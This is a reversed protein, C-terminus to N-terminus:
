SFVTYRCLREVTTLRAHRAKHHVCRRCWMQTDGPIRYAALHFAFQRSWETWSEHVPNYHRFPPAVALQPQPLPSAAAAADHQLARQGQVLQGLADLLAQTQQNQLRYFESLVDPSAM